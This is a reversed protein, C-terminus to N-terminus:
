WIQHGAWRFSESRGWKIGIPAQWEHCGGQRGKRRLRHRPVLAVSERLEPEGEPFPALHATGDDPDAQGLGLSFSDGLDGALHAQAKRRIAAPHQEVAREWGPPRHARDRLDVLLGTDLEGANTGVDVLERLPRVAAM